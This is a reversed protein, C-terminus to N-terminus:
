AAQKFPNIYFQRAQSASLVQIEADNGDKAFITRIVQVFDLAAGVAVLLADVVAQSFLEPAWDPINVGQLGLTALLTGILVWIASARLIVEPVKM